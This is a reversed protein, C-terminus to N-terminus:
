FDIFMTVDNWFQVHGRNNCVILHKNPLQTMKINTWCLHAWENWIQHNLFLNGNLDFHPQQDDHPTFLTVMCIFFSFFCTFMIQMTFLFDACSTLFERWPTPPYTKDVILLLSLSWLICCLIWVRPSGLFRFPLSVIVYLFFAMSNNSLPSIFCSWKLELLFFFFFLEHHFHISIDSDLRNPM